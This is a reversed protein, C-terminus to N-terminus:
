THALARVVRNRGLRKAHYMAQDAANIVEAATAGDEPYAAVGLSITAQLVNEGYVTKLVAFDTRWQEARLATTEKSAKPLILLFEEGGYRCAIDGARIGGTLLKALDQLILDGAMHGHIDNVQKFHDIDIMIMGISFKERSARAMERDISEELYRRNFLGTLPDRIAQEQLKTQLEAIERYNNQLLLHAKQLEIEQRKRETIDYLATLIAAQEKYVMPMPSSVVTVFTGDLCRLTVELPPVPRNEETLIRTRERITDFLEPPAFDTIRMGLVEEPRSAKFLRLFAPNVYIFKGKVHIFVAVALTEILRTLEEESKRLAEEVQKIRTIDQRSGWIRVLRGTEVHGFINSLFYKVKGDKDLSKTEVGSLRCGNEFFRVLHAVNGRSLRPYIQGIRFGILEEYHNYGHDAAFTQNCEGIVAQRYLQDIMKELPLSLDLPEGEIEFRCIAESSNNVFAQYRDRSLRLEEEAQRREREKAELAATMEDFSRALQGLEGGMQGLGTRASLKGQGVQQSADVLRKIRKVILVHGLLWAILIAAGLAAALIGMNRLFIERTTALAQAEPIGVRMYLYPSSDGPLDFKKYAFLRKVGDVGAATFIGEQPAASLHKVMAPLDTRGVYKENDPHRYLRTFNRDLLNLTAGKPLSTTSAFYRGYKDLDLSVAVVGKVRGAPDTLPYAFPLVARRSVPGITFEGASFSKTRVADQFYKRHNINIKVSPLTTAFIDGALDAAYIATYRDNDKILEMFLRKCAAADRNQLAPLKVLTMLLRRIVEVDNEHDNALSQVMILANDQAKAIDLRQREYNSYVIVSLAPLVAAFILIILQTRISKM